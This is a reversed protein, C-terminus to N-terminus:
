DITALLNRFARDVISPAASEPESIDFGDLDFSVDKVAALFRAGARRMAQGDFGGSLADHLHTKLQTEDTVLRVHPLFNYQNHRGFTIVPKGLVAAEFGATGTITAVADCQRVVDLGLELMDLLVVNKFERIQDYFDAPRRGIAEYTEKVALMVGAPLDRSLAAIASLQYFYEPSLQLLATEPETHLPYFVFRTGKMDSLKALKTGTLARRDRWRRIFYRLEEGTYYGRAKEYGRLRWWMRRLVRDGLSRALGATSTSRLFIKRLAMHSDYPASLEAEAVHEGDLRRYAAEVSPNEFYENHVWQHLSKHRSGALVRVPVGRKRAIRAAVRAGNIVLEPCKTDFEERWFAIQANFGQLMQAYSTRESRRSRPHNFGALAYGRGLHRDAVALTNIPTHLWAENARATEIVAAEDSVPRDVNEYLSNDPVVSAFLESERNFRRYYTAEQANACYLHIEAKAEDRLRQAIGVLLGRYQSHALLFVPDGVTLM